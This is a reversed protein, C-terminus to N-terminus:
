GTPRATCFKTEAATPMATAMANTRPKMRTALPPSIPLKQTSRVRPERRMRRGNEKTIARIRNLWPTIWDNWLPKAEVPRSPLATVLASAGTADWSAILSSPVLPPPIKAALEACGNSFGVGNLLTTSIRAIRNIGTQRVRVNPVRTPSRLCPRVRSATIPIRHLPSSATVSAASDPARPTAAVAAPEIISPLSTRKPIGPDANNATAVVPVDVPATFEAWSLM